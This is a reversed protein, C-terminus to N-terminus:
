GSNTEKNTAEILIMNRFREPVNKLGDDWADPFIRYLTAGWTKAEPDKSRYMELVRHGDIRMSYLHKLSVTITSDGSLGTAQKISTRSPSAWGNTDAHLAIKMFVALPNLSKGTNFLHLKDRLAVAVEDETGGLSLKRGQFITIM